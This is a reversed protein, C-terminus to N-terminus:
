YSKFIIFVNQLNKRNYYFLNSFISLAKTFSKYNKSELVYVEMKNAYHLMYQNHLASVKAKLRRILRNKNNIKTLVYIDNEEKFLSNVKTNRNLSQYLKSLMETFYFNNSKNDKKDKQYIMIKILVINEDINNKVARKFKTLSDTPFQYKANEQNFPVEDFVITLSKPNSTKDSATQISCKYSKKNIYITSPAEWDINNDLWSQLFRWLGQQSDQDLKQLLDRYSYTKDTEFGQFNSNFRLFIQNNEKFFEIIYSNILVENKKQLLFYITLTLGATLSVSIVVLFVFTIISEM